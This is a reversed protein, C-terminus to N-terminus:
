KGPQGPEVSSDDLLEGHSLLQVYRNCWGYRMGAIEMLWHEHESARKRMESASYAPDTPSIPVSWRGANPAAWARLKRGINALTVDHARLHYTGEFKDKGEGYDVRYQVRHFSGDAPATKAWEALQLNTEKWINHGTRREFEASHGPIGQDRRLAIKQAPLKKWTKHEWPVVEVTQIAQGRQEVHASVLGGTREVSLLIASGREFHENDAPLLYVYEENAFPLVLYEQPTGDSTPKTALFVFPHTLGSFSLQIHPPRESTAIIGFGVYAHLEAFDGEIAFTIMQKGQTSM